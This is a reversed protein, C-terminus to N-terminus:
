CLESYVEAIQLKNEPFISSTLLISKTAIYIQENEFEFM